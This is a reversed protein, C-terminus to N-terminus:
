RQDSTHEQERYVCGSIMTYQFEVYLIPRQRIAEHHSLLRKRTASLSTAGGHRRAVTPDLNSEAFADSIHSM